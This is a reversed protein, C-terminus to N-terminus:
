TAKVVIKGILRGVELARDASNSLHRYVERQKLITHFDPGAFLELLAQRYRDEVRGEAEQLDHACKWARQPDRQLHDIAQKILRASAELIEAIKQMQPTTSVQFLSVERAANNIYNLMDDLTEGLNYIDQRDIPTVFSDRLATNLDDLVRGGKSRLDNIRESLGASGSTLYEKLLATAQVLLEAQEQALTFFRNIRRSSFLDALWM